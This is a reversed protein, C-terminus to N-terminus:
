KENEIEGRMTKILQVLKKPLHDLHHMEFIGTNGTTEFWFPLFYYKTGNGDIVM